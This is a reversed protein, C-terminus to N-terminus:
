CNLFNFTFFVPPKFFDPYYSQFSFCNLFLWTGSSPQAEEPCVRGGGGLQTGEQSLYRLESFSAGFQLDSVIEIGGVILVACFLHQHQSMGACMGNQISVLIGNM